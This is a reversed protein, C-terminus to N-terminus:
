FDEDSDIDEEDLNPDDNESESNFYPYDHMILPIGKRSQQYRDILLELQSKEKIVPEFYGSKQQHKAKDKEFEAKLYELDAQAIRRYIYKKDAIYLDDFLVIRNKRTEPGKDPDFTIVEEELLPIKAEDFTKRALHSMRKLFGKPIIVAKIKKNVLKTATIQAGGQPDLLLIIDGNNLGLEKEAKYLDQDQLFAIAKIPVKNGKAWILRFKKLIEISSYAKEIEKDKIDIMKKLQIIERLKQEVRNDRDVERIRSRRNKKIKEELNIIYSKQKINENKTRKRDLEAEYLSNQLSQIKRNLNDLNRKLLAINGNGNTNQELKSKLIDSEIKLEIETIVSHIPVGTISQTIIYDFYHALDPRATLLEKIKVVIKEISYFGKLAAFLADRQHTDLREEIQNTNELFSQVVNRKESRSITNSSNPSFLEGGLIKSLKLVNHPIDKVDACIMIAKGFQSILRVIQSTGFDRYSNLFILQGTKVEIIAIGTTTGPDVGIIISKLPKYPIISPANYNLPVFEISSKPIRSVKVRALDNGYKNSFSKFWNFSFKEQDPRVIFVTRKPYIFHDFDISQEILQQNIEKDISAVSIKMNREYRPASWGGKGIGRTKSVIIKIEDEFPVVRYGINMAALKAVMEATELPTPHGKGHTRLGYRESLATLKQFGQRPSGTVQIIEVSDPIKRAFPIIGGKDTAIEMINDIAIIEPKSRKILGILNFLDIENFSQKILFEIDRNRKVLDKKNEISEQYFDKESNIKESDNNIVQLVIVSFKPGKARNPHIDMGFITKIPTTFAIKVEYALFM